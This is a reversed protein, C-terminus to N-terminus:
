SMKEGHGLMLGSAPDFAIGGTLRSVLKLVQILANPNLFEASDSNETDAENERCEQHLNKIFSSYKPFKLPTPRHLKEAKKEYIQEFHLLEIKASYKRAKAILAKEKRSIDHSELEDALASFERVVNEGESYVFDIAAHDQFALISFTEAFGRPNTIQNKIEFPSKLKKLHELLQSTAPRNAVELMVLFTERWCFNQDEFM